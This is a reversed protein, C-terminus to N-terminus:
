LRKLIAMAANFKDAQQTIRGITNMTMNKIDDNFGLVVSELYYSAM